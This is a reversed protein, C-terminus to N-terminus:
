AMTASPASCKETAAACIAIAGASLFALREEADLYLRNGSKDTLRMASTSEAM